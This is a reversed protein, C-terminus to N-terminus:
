IRKIRRYKSSPQGLALQIFGTMWLNPQNILQDISLPHFNDRLLAKGERPIILNWGRRTVRNRRITPYRRIWLNVQHSLYPPYNCPTNCTNLHRPVSSSNNDSVYVAFVRRGQIFFNKKRPPPPTSPSSSPLGAVHLFLSSLIPVVPAKKRSRKHIPHSERELGLCGLSTSM